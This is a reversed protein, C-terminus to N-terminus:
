AIDKIKEKPKGGIAQALAVAMVPDFEGDL